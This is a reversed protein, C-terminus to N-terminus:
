GEIIHFEWTEVTMKVMVLRQSCTKKSINGCSCIENERAIFTLELKRKCKDKHLIIQM